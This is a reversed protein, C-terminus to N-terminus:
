LVDKKSADEKEQHSPKILWDLIKELIKFGINAVLVILTLLLFDNFGIELKTSAVSHVSANSEATTQIETQTADLVNSGSGDPDNINKLVIYSAASSMMFEGKKPM